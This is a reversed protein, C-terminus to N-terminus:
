KVQRRLVEGDRPQYAGLDGHISEIVAKFIDEMQQDYGPANNTLHPWAIRVSVVVDAVESKADWISYRTNGQGAEQRYITWNKSSEITPPQDGLQRGVDNRAAQAKPSAPRYLSIILNTSDPTNKDAPNAIQFAAISIPPKTHMAIVQWEDPVTFAVYGKETIMSMDVAQVSLTFLTTIFLTLYKLM